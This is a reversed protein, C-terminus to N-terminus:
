VEEQSTTFTISIINVKISWPLKTLHFAQPPAAYNIPRTLTKEFTCAANHQPAPPSSPCLHFPLAFIPNWAVPTLRPLITVPVQCRRLTVGVDGLFAASADCKAIYTLHKYSRCLVPLARSSSKQIKILQM